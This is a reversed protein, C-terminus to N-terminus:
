TRTTGSLKPRDCVFVFHERTDRPNDPTLEGHAARVYGGRELVRHSAINEAHVPVVISQARPWDAWLKSSFQAILQTGWGRRTDGAEGILYDISCAGDPVAVLSRLEEVYQPYAHVFYRQALGIDRGEHEVIFVESPETGDVSPGYDAEIGALSADDAWWRAVHPQRLWHSLRPFDSRAILRFRM